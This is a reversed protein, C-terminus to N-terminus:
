LGWTTWSDLTIKPSGTSYTCHVFTCWEICRIVCKCIVHKSRQGIIYVNNKCYTKANKKRKLQRRVYTVCTQWSWCLFQTLSVSRNLQTLSVSRQVVEHCIADTIGIPKSSRSFNRWHYRDTVVEHCIADTIGIPKSSRTM